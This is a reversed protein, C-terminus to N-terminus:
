SEQSPIATGIETEYHERIAVSIRSNPEIEIPIPRVPQTNRNTDAVKQYEHIAHIQQSVVRLSDALSKWARLEKETM